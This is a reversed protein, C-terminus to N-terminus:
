VAVASFPRTNNSEKIRKQGAVIEELWNDLKLSLFHCLCRIHNTRKKPILFHMKLGRRELTLEFPDFPILVTNNPEGFYMM